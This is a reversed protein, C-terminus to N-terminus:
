WPDTATASLVPEALARPPSRPRPRPSSRARRPRARPGPSARGAARRGSSTAGDPAAPWSGRGRRSGARRSASGRPARGRRRRRARPPRRWRTRRSRRRRDARHQQDRHAVGAGLSLVDGADEVVADGLREADQQDDAAHGGEDGPGPLVAGRMGVRAMMMPLVRGPRPPRGMAWHNTSRARACPAKSRSTTSRRSSPRGNRSSGLWGRRRWYVCCCVFSQLARTSAASANTITVGSYLWPM